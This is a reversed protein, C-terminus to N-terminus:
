ASATVRTLLENVAVDLDATRRTPICLLVALLLLLNALLDMIALRVRNTQFLVRYLYM